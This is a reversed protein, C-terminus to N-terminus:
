KQLIVLGLLGSTQRPSGGFVEAHALRLRNNLTSGVRIEITNEGELLGDRLWLVPHLPDVGPLTRGNLRVEVANSVAGLDLRLAGDAASWDLKAAYTGIGSVDACGELQTWAIPAELAHESIVHKSTYATEGPEWSDLTLTWDRLTVPEGSFHDEVSDKAAIWDRPASALIVSSGAAVSVEAVLRGAGDETSPMPRIEGTWPDLAYLAEWGGHSAIGVTTTVDAQTPNSFYAFRAWRTERMAHVLPADDQRIRPALGLQELGQPISERDPVNAVNPLALLQEFITKLEATAAETPRGSPQPASWDGVIVLPLKARAFELLRHATAVPMTPSRRQFADGEFVLAQYAPGEPALVDDKVVALPLSLTAPSVFNHTWGLRGGEKSFWAAGFGSGAYGKQRLFAVDVRPKGTQLVTQVRGFYDAIGHLLEWTPQRPSWGEAYGPHGNYPSFAAFGPWAVEPVDRYAFGHLVSQNVGAAYIPNLTSLMRKWTTSYAGGAFAGAEDSLVTHGGLDRGGALSRFDDLNKFGLSEGEAVDLYAAASVADTPLGYPQSRMQMGMTHAWEQLPALHAEIFLQSMVDWWDHVVHAAEPTDFRFIPDEDEQVIIPLWPLLSYGKRAEFIELLGPTWLTADTEMEISDEFFAGGVKDLLSRMEPNLINREWFDIVVQAGAPSFHDVVYSVPETHPGGEPRQGSGRQWYSLILWRGDEPATWSLEYTAADFPIERVSGPVLDVEKAEPDAGDVLRAVQVLLLDERIDKSHARVEPLPVPGRYTEGGEVLQTGAALEKMAEPSNPTISPLAVPWSPGLTLDIVFDHQAAEDLAAMVADIWPQTGWGNTEPALPRRVSHHVDAIEAGGFGAEAMARVEARIEAPDVLGHPWWWRFKARQAMAPSEFSAAWDSKSGVTSPISAHPVPAQAAFAVLGAFSVGFATFLRISM